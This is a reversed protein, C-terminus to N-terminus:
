TVACSTRESPDFSMVSYVVDISMLPSVWSTVCPISFADPVSAAKTGPLTRAKKVSEFSATRNEGAAGLWAGTTVAGAFM